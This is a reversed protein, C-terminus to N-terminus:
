QVLFQDLLSMDNEFDYYTYLSLSLLSRRYGGYANLFNQETESQRSITQLLDQLTIQKNIYRELSLLTIEKAMVQNRNMKLAREQYEELNSVAQTIESEINRSTEDIYIETKKMTIRSAEIRAKRQGWDWIPVYANVSVSYSNDSEQWLNEYRDDQKEIGYTMELDVRFANNGKTNNLDLENQRKRNELLKIQPRLKFGYEIARELEVYIPIIRVETSVVVSDQENLGLIQKLRLIELRLNSLNQFVKEQANALEVQIQIQDIERSKDEKIQENIIEQVRELTEVTRKNIEHRYSFEFIDYYDDSARNIIGVIDSLYELESEELNLEANEIANKLHNPQFLPQEYKLFYRNYYKVDGDGNKQSYRYVQNNLSVYGDTPFGFLIVPQRVSFDMQWLRTNRRVIEDKQLVSNWKYESIAEIVPAKLNMSFNTKLGARSARLWLRTREISLELQKVRFSREMSIKITKDLSLDIINKMQNAKAYISIVPFNILLMLFLVFKMLRKDKGTM